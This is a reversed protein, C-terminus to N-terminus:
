CEICTIKGCNKKNREERQEYFWGELKIYKIVDKENINSLKRNIWFILNSHTIVFLLMLKDTFHIVRAAVSYRYHTVFAIAM